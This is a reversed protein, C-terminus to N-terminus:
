RDREFKSFRRIASDSIGINKELYEYACFYQWYM